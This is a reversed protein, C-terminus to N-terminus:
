LPELQLVDHRPVTTVEIVFYLSMVVMALMFAFPRMQDYTGFLIQRCCPALPTHSCRTDCLLRCV